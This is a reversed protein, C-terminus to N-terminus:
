RLRTRQRDRSVLRLRALIRAHCGADAPANSEHGDQERSGHGREAALGGPGREVALGHLNRILLEDEVVPECQQDVGVVRHGDHPHVEVIRDARAVLPRALGAERVQELVEEEVARLVMGAPEAFRHVVQARVVAVAGGALVAGVEELVHRSRGELARQKELRVAQSEQPRLDVLRHELALAAHHLVLLPLTLVLRVAPHEVVDELLHVGLAM